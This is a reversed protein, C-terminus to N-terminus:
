ERPREECYDVKITIKVRKPPIRIKKRRHINEEMAEGQTSLRENESFKVTFDKKSTVGVNRTAEMKKRTKKDKKKVHGIVGRDRKM